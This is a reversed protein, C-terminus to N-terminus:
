ERGRVASGSTVRDTRDTTLSPPGALPSGIGIHRKEKDALLAWLGKKGKQALAYGQWLIGDAGACPRAYGNEVLMRQLTLSDEPDILTGLREGSELEEQRQTELVLLFSHSNTLGHIYEAVCHVVQTPALHEDTPIPEIGCLRIAVTVGNTRVVVQCPSKVDVLTAWPMAKMADRACKAWNASAQRASTVALILILFTGIIHARRM